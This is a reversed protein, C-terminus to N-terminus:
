TVVVLLLVTLTLDQDMKCSVFCSVDNIYVKNNYSDINVFLIDSRSVCVCM